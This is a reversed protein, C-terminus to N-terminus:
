VRKRRGETMRMQPPNRPPQDVVDDAPADEAAPGVGEPEGHRRHEGRGGPQADAPGSPVPLSFPADAGPAREDPAGRPPGKTNTDTDPRANERQM